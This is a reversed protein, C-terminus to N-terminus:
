HYAAIYGKHSKRHGGAVAQLHTQNLGLERAIDSIVGCWINGTKTDIVVGAKARPRNSWSVNGSNRNPVGSKSKSIKDKWDQSLKQGKNWGSVKKHGRMLNYAYHDKYEGTRQWECWHWMIHETRTVEILNSPDDSGGKWRPEIHHIHTEL